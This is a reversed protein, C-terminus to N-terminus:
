EYRIAEVPDLQSAKWAPYLTAVFSVALALIGVFALDGGVTKFPVYNLYYVEPNLKIIRYHDLWASAATGLAVGLATGIVGIVLGQLMFVTAIGAPRAGLATLTGIEKIKDTVMLILTSVINLAAVVVILGIALFLILKETNLAKLLERNQEIMDLILWGTDLASGLATKMRALRSVDQVRVDVWSVRGPAGLLKQAAPLDIYARQSDQLFSDTKFFGVVEFVQSRPLPTFPTLTVRPVLVRVTDGRLAGLSSALEEGLVIGQRGSATPSKLAELAGPGEELRVVHEHRGPLVGHIQAYAPTGLDENIVMAPSYLVPSAEVVGPVEEIRSVLAQWDEFTSGGTSMVTLHASGRLIRDRLDTQFGTMLALAIVLAATGVTVGAVSILTIVSLFASGRHFRLYRLALHIEYPLRM